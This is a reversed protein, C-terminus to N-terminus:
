HKVLNPRGKLKKLFYLNLELCYIREIEFVRFVRHSGHIGFVFRYQSESFASEDEERWIRFDPHFKVFSCVPFIDTVVIVLGDMQPFRRAEPM